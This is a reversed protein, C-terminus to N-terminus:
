EGGEDKARMLEQCVLEVRESEIYFCEYSVAGAVEVIICGAGKNRRAIIFPGDENGVHIPANGRDRAAQMAMSSLVDVRSSHAPCGPYFTHGDYDKGEGLSWGAGLLEDVPLAESVLGCLSEEPCEQPDRCRLCTLRVLREVEPRSSKTSM